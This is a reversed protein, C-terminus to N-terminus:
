EFEGDDEIPNTQDIEQVDQNDEPLLEIEALFMFDMAQQLTIGAMDVNYAVGFMQLRKLALAECDSFLHEVTQVPRPDRGDLPYNGTDTQCLDCVPSGVNELLIRGKLYKQRNM